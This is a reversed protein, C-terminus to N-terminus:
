LRDGANQIEKLFPVIGERLCKAVVADNGNKLGDNLKITENNVTDKDIQIGLEEILDKTSNYVQILWNIGKLITDLYEQTDPLKTGTLEVVVNEIGKELKASYEAATKLAEEKESRLEM